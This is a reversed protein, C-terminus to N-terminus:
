GALRCSYTTQDDTSWNPLGSKLRLLSAVPVQIKYELVRNRKLEGFVKNIDDQQLSNNAYWDLDPAKAGVTALMMSVSVGKYIHIMSMSEYAYLGFELHMPLM